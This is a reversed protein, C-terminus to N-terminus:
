PTRLVEPLDRPLTKASSLHRPLHFSSLPPPFYPLYLLVVAPGAMPTTPTTYYHAYHYHQDLLTHTTPHLHGCVRPDIPPPGNPFLSFTSSRSAPGVCPVHVRTRQRCPDRGLVAGHSPCPQSAPLATLSAHLTAVPPCTLYHCPMYRCSPMYHCPMYHCPMYRCSPMYHCSPVGDPACLPESLGWKGCRVKREIGLLACGIRRPVNKTHYATDRSCARPGATGATGATGGDRRGQSQPCRYTCWVVCPQAFSGSWSGTAMAIESRRGVDESEQNAPPPSGVHPDLDM